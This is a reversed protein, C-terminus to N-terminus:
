EQIRSMKINRAKRKFAEAQQTDGNKEYAISLSNLANYSDPYNAVNYRFISIAGETKNISLAYKGINDIMKEDPIFTHKLTQSLKKYQDAIIESNDPLKKVPLEIGDFIYRFADHIGPVVVSSHDEDPYLKWSTRLGNKPSSQLITSCFEEITKSHMDKGDSTDENRAKAVYLSRGKFDADKWMEKAENFVKRNDWWLSPDIAVYANFSMPRRLLTNVTFLGGLSHGVLINYGNTRFKRNIEARLETILFETFNDAGGSTSYLERGDRMVSAQSPTLDRGRDTNLIGVIIAEPMSNYMNYTFAKQVAAMTYFNRDGDLLYIVPYNANGYNNDHYGPPLYVWYSRNEDLVSSQISYVKGININEQAFLLSSFSLTLFILYIIRKM